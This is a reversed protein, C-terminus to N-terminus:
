LLEVEDLDISWKGSTKNPSQLWAERVVLPGRLSEPFVARVIAVASAHLENTVRIEAIHQPPIPSPIWAEARWRLRESTPGEWWDEFTAPEIQPTQPGWDGALPRLSIGPTLVAAARIVLLVPEWQLAAWGTNPRLSVYCVNASAAVPLTTAPRRRVGTKGAKRDEGGLIGLRLISGLRELPTSHYVFRCGHAALSDLREKRNAADRAQQARSRERQRRKRSASQPGSV